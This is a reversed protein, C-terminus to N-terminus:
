CTIEQSPKALTGVGLLLPPNALFQEVLDQRVWYFQYHPVMPRSGMKVPQKGRCRSSKLKKMQVRIYYDERWIAWDVNPSPKHIRKQVNEHKDCSDVFPMIYTRGDKGITTKSSDPMVLRRNFRNCESCRSNQPFGDENVFVTPVAYNRRGQKIVEFIIKSM